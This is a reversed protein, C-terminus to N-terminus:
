DIKLEPNSSDTTEKNQLLTSFEAVSVRQNPDNNGSAFYMNKCTVITANFRKDKMPGDLM